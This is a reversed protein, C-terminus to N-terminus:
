LSEFGVKNGKALKYAKYINLLTTLDGESSLFKQRVAHIHDRQFYFM